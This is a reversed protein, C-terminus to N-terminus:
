RKTGPRPAASSRASMFRCAAPKSGSGTRMSSCTSRWRRTAASSGRCRGNPAPAASCSGASSRRAQRPAASRRSRPRATSRSCGSASHTPARSTASRRSRTASPSASPRPAPLSCWRSRPSRPPTSAPASRPWFSWCSRAGPEGQRCLVGPQGAIGQRLGRYNDRVVDLDVVLCPGDDLGEDYRRRLFDRIRETM